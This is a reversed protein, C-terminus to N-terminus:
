EAQGEAGEKWAGEEMSWEGGRGGGAGGVGRGVVGAPPGASLGRFVDGFAFVLEVHMGPSGLGPSPLSRVLILMNATAGRALLIRPILILLGLLIMRLRGARHNPHIILPAPLPMRISQSPATSPPPHDSHSQPAQHPARPVVTCLAFVIVHIQELRLFLPMICSNRRQGIRDALRSHCSM